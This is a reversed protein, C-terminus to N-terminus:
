GFCNRNTFLLSDKRVLSDYVHLPFGYGDYCGNHMVDEDEDLVKAEVCFNKREDAAIFDELKVHSENVKHNAVHKALPRGIM